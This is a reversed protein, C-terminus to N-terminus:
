ILLLRVWGIWIVRCVFIVRCIWICGYMVMFVVWKLWWWVCLRLLIVFVLRCVCVVM